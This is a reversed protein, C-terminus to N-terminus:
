KKTSFLYKLKSFYFYIPSLNACAHIVFIVVSFNFIFNCFTAFLQKKTFYVTTEICQKEFGIKSKSECFHVQLCWFYYFRFIFSTNILLMM